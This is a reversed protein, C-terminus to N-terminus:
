LSPREVPVPDGDDVVRVIPGYARGPLGYPGGLSMLGPATLLCGLYAYIGLASPLLLVNETFAYVGLAPILAILLPRDNPSAVRLLQRYWLWLAAMFLVFGVVGGIVLIHPYENHPTPLPFTM